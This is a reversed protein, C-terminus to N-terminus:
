FCDSYYLESVIVTQSLQFCNWSSAAYLLRFALKNKKRSKMSINNNEYFYFFFAERHFNNNHM